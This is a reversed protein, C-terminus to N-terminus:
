AGGWRRVTHVVTADRRPFMERPVTHDWRDQVPYAPSLGPVSERRSPGQVDHPMPAPGETAGPPIVMLYSRLMRPPDRPRNTRAHPPVVEVPGPTPDVAPPPPLVVGPVAAANM